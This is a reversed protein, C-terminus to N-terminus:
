LDGHEKNVIPSIPTNEIEEDSINVSKKEKYLRCLMAVPSEGNEVFYEDGAKPFRIDSISNCHIPGGCYVNFRNEPKSDLLVTLTGGCKCEGVMTLSEYLKLQEKYLKREKSKM